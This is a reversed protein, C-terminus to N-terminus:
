WKVKTKRHNKNMLIIGAFEGIWTSISCWVGWTYTVVLLTRVTATYGPYGDFPIPLGGKQFYCVEFPLSM